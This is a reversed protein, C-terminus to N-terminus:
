PLLHELVTEVSGDYQALLQIADGRSVAMWEMVTLIANDGFLTGERSSEAQQRMNGDSSLSSINSPGAKSSVTSTEPINSHCLSGLSLSETDKMTNISLMEAFPDTCMQMKFWETHMHLTVKMIKMLAPECIGLSASLAVQLTAGVIFPSVAKVLEGQPRALALVTEKLSKLLDSHKAALPGMDCRAISLAEAYKGLEVLKLFELQKLQFLLHPNHEFFQSNLRNVKQIVEPIMGECAMERIELALGFKDADSGEENNLNLVSKNAAIHSNSFSSFHREKKFKQNGNQSLPSRGVWRKRPYSAQFKRRSSSQKQEQGKCGSTSCISESATCSDARASESGMSNESRSDGQDEMATEEGERDVRKHREVFRSHLGAANNKHDESVDSHTCAKSSDEGENKVSSGHEETQDPVTNIIESCTSSVSTTTVDILGRYVCYDHVLDDLLGRDLRIRGLENKLALNLDGGAYRLSDVAGQRSVDVAHALAQVDSEDFKPAELLCDYPTAPPDKEKHLLAGSLEAIPSTTGQRSCYCNHTSLLYRLALSFLPDYARLQARLVSAVTAALEIRNSESWEQVVPSGADDKSYILVLLLRKFEEYAEPYATLAYPGLVTRSCQIAEDQAQRGGARLLEIFKQKHLRFLLRQDQLVSPAQLKLLELAENISGKEILGRIHSITSRLVFSGLSKDSELLLQEADAYDLILADLANWNVPVKEFTREDMDATFWFAAIADFGLIALLLVYVFINCFLKGVCLSPKGISGSLSKSCRVLASDFAQQWPVVHCKRLPFFNSSFDVLKFINLPMKHPTPVQSPIPSTPIEGEKILDPIGECFMRELLLPTHGSKSTKDESEEQTINPRHNTHHPHVQTPFVTDFIKVHRPKPQLKRQTNEVFGRLHQVEEIEEIPNPYAGINKKHNKEKPGQPKDHPNKIPNLFVQHM